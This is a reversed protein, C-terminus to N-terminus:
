EGESEVEGLRAECDALIIAENWVSTGEVMACTGATADMQVAYIRTLGDPDFIYASEITVGDQPLSHHLILDGVAAFAQPEHSTVTQLLVFTGDAGQRWLDYATESGATSIPVFLESVGDGDLDYLSPAQDIGKVAIEGSTIRSGGEATAQTIRLIAGDSVPEYLFALLMPDALLACDAMGASELPLDACDPVPGEQAVVPGSSAILLLSFCLPLHM